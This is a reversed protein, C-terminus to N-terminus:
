SIIMGAYDLAIYYELIYRNKPHLNGTERYLDLILGAAEVVVEMFCESAKHTQGCGAEKGQFKEHVVGAERFLQHDDIYDLSSIYEDVPTWLDERETGIFKRYVEAVTKVQDPTM